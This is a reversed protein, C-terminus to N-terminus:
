QSGNSKGTASRPNSNLSPLCQAALVYDAHIEFTWHGLCRLRGVWIKKEESKPWKMELKKSFKNNKHTGLFLIRLYLFKQTFQIDRATREVPPVGIMYMYM